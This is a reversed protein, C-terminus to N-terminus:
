RIAKMMRQALRQRSRSAQGSSILGRVSCRTIADADKQFHRIDKLNETTLTTVSTNITTVENVLSAVGDALQQSVMIGYDLADEYDAPFFEGQNRFDSLQEVLLTRELTLTTGSAVPSTTTVTGGAGNGAGTMTYDVGLTFPVITGNALTVFVALDSNQFIRFTYSFPGSSGSGSYTNIRNTSTVTM